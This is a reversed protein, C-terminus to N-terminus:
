LFPGQARKKTKGPRRKRNEMEELMPTEQPLLKPFTPGIPRDPCQNFLLRVIVKYLQFIINILLHRLLFFFDMM